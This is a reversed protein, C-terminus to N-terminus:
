GGCVDAHVGGLLRMDVVVLGEDCDNCGRLPVEVMPVETWVGYQVVSAASSDTIYLRESPVDIFREIAM